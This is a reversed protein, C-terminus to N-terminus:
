SIEIIYAYFNLEYAVSFRNHKWYFPCEIISTYPLTTRYQLVGVFCVFINYLCFTSNKTVFRATCLRSMSALYSEEAQMKTLLM